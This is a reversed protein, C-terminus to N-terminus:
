IFFQAVRQPLHLSSNAQEPLIEMDDIISMNGDPTLPGDHPEDVDGSGNGMGGMLMMLYFLGMMDSMDMDGFGSELTTDGGFDFEFDAGEDLESTHIVNGDEDEIINSYGDDTIQIPNGDEDYITITVTGDDEYDAAFAATPISVFLMGFALLGAILRKIRMM